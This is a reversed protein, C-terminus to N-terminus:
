ERLLATVSRLDELYPRYYSDPNGRSIFRAAFQTLYWLVTARIQPETMQLRDAEEEILARWAADEASRPALTGLWSGIPGRERRITRVFHWADYLPCDILGFYEFDLLVPGHRGWIVNSATLDGHQLSAPMRAPLNARIFAVIDPELWVQDLVQLWPALSDSPNFLSNAPPLAGLSVATELLLQRSALCSRAAEVANAPSAHLIRRALSRGEVFTLIQAHMDPLKVVHSAPVLQATTPARSLCALTKAERQANIDDPRRVKVYHAVRAHDSVLLAHFGRTELSDPTSAGQQIGGVNRVVLIDTWDLTYGIADSLARVLASTPNM